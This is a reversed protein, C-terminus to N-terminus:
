FCYNGHIERYYIEDLLESYDFFDKITNKPNSDKYILFDEEYDYEELQNVWFPGDPDDLPHLPQVKDPPEVSEPPKFINNNSKIKKKKLKKNNKRRQKNNNKRKKIFKSKKS